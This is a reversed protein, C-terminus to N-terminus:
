KASNGNKNSNLQRKIYEKFFMLDSKWKRLANTFNPHYQFKHIASHLDRTIEFESLKGSEYLAVLIRRRQKESYVGEQVNYGAQHLKSEGGSFFTNGDLNDNSLVILFDGYEKQYIKLVEIGIFYKHCTECYHVPVSISSSGDLLSFCKLTPIVKHNKRNCSISSLNNFICIRDDFIDAKNQSIGSTVHSKKYYKILANIHRNVDNIVSERAAWLNMEKKRITIHRIVLWEYNKLFDTFGYFVYKFKLPAIRKLWYCNDIFNRTPQARLPLNQFEGTFVNIKDNQFSRLLPRIDKYIANTIKECPVWSDKTDILESLKDSFVTHIQSYLEYFDDYECLLALSIPTLAFEIDDM